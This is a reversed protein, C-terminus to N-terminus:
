NFSHVIVNSFNKLNKIYNEALPNVVVVKGHIADSITNVVDSSFQSESFVTKVGDHNCEQIIRVLQRPGPSKGELEISKQVLGFRSLFYGFAPHFTLITKGKFKSLKKKIERYLIDLKSKFINLRRLIVKKQNPLEKIIYKAISDAQIKVLLPDLWIHPDGTQGRMAVNQIASLMQRKKIGKDTHIIKVNPCISVIKKLFSKEYPVGIAFFLKARSLRAIQAPSPQYTEPSVGPRVLVSVKVLNGAIEKVFYKQPLISVFVNLPEAFVPVSCITFLWVALCFKTFIKINNM